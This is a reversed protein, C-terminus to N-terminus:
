RKGKKNKNNMKKRREKGMRKSSGNKSRQNGKSGNGKKGHQPKFDAIDNVSDRTNKKLGRKKGGFGYKDDKYQRKGSQNKNHKGGQPPRKDTKSGTDGGGGELFDLGQIKGKRFKKVNAMLERKEKARNLQVEVQVKKGFKKLERLKRIKETREQEQTKSLLKQRIKQMHDDSKLMQAFYDDPRKTPINLSKLRKVGEIAASQAQRHFLMERKFDNHISDRGIDIESKNSTLQKQRANAHQKQYFALEPAEAAPEVVLDLREMWPLNNSLEALKQEMLPLNKKFTRNTPAEGVVNLGPKLVGAAFAEKLEEDTDQDYDSFESHESEAAEVDGPITEIENM